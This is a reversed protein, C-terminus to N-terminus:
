HINHRDVDNRRLPRSRLRRAYCRRTNRRGTGHRRANCRTRHNGGSRGPGRDHRLPRHRRRRRRGTKHRERNPSRRSGNPRGRPHPAEEAINLCVMQTLDRCLLRGAVLAMPAWADHGDLVQATAVPQYGATTAEAMTLLGEDNLVYILGDAILYPGLGFRHEAGSSWVM